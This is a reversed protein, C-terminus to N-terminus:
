RTVKAGFQAANLTILDWQALGGGIAHNPDGTWLKTGITYSSYCDMDTGGTATTGDTKVIPQVSRNGVDGKRFVLNAQVGFIQGAVTFNGISYLDIDNVTGDFSYLSSDGLDVVPSNVQAARNASTLPGSAPAWNNVDGQADPLRTQVRVDGLFDMNIDAVVDPLTDLIYFDDIIPPQEVGQRGFWVKNVYGSGQNDPVGSFTAVVAENMRCILGGGPAFKVEFYFWLGVPPAVGSTGITTGGCKFVFHGTINDTSVTLQPGNDDALTLFGSVNGYNDLIMACGVVITSCHPVTKTASLALIAGGEFRGAWTDANAGVDWKRGAWGDWSNYHDFGDFFYLM